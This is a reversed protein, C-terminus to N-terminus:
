PEVAAHNQRGSSVETQPAQPFSGSGDAHCAHIGDFDAHIERFAALLLPDFHRPLARGDGELMVRCAQAHTFAPKYPRTTRLADYQDVLMVVRAPLLSKWGRSGMRIGLAM